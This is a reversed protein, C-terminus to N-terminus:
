NLLDNIIKNLNNKYNKCKETLFYDRENDILNKDINKKFESM